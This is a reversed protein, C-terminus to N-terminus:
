IAALEDLFFRTNAITSYPSQEFTGDSCVIYLLCTKLTSQTTEVRGGGGGCGEREFDPEHILLGVGVTPRGSM